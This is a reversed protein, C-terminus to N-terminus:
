VFICGAITDAIFDAARGNGYFGAPATFGRSLMQMTNGVLDDSAPDALCAAGCEVLETWETESRFVVCPKRYFYAEKQVGGSDTLVLSCASELRVMQLYGLPELFLIGNGEMESFYSDSKAFEGMMKRTRPHVPWCIVQASQRHIEQMASLIRKLYVPNDTNLSRHVTALIFKGEELGLGNFWDQSTRVAKEKFYLANDYMVDGSLFIGPRDAHWPGANYKGFGENRLNQMGTETPCFLLTSVHDTLIRNIEEPMAKNFSRLGAEVHVLPIGLKSAALAGALTSNTDGYVLVMDPREVLFIQELGEMIRATQAGHGGSGSQTNFAPAPIELEEFFVDSMGVDYHQGTHVIKEEIVEPYNKALCRSLAAAKIFQPRAGVVTFVRIPKKQM